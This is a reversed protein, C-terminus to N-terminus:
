LGSAEILIPDPKGVINPIMISPSIDGSWGAKIFGSGTDLILAKDM